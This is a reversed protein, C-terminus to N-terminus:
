GRSAHRRCHCPQRSGSWPYDRGLAVSTRARASREAQNVPCCELSELDFELQYLRHFSLVLANAGSEDLRQALCPLATLFLSPKVAVPISTSAKVQSVVEGDQQEIHGGSRDPDVTVGYLNVEIDDAGARQVHRAHRVWGGLSTGDLGAIVPISIAKKTKHILKLCGDSSLNYSRLDPFYSLSEAFSEDGRSLKIDTAESEM